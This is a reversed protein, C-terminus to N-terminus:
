NNAFFLANVMFLKGNEWFGRFLPNDILYIVCGAGVNEQGIILSNSQRALAKSGAFGNLQRVNSGLVAANGHEGLCDYSDGSLKLTYYTEPYGYCLPNTNDLKCSFVAGTISNSIMEREAQSYTIHAHEHKSGDSTPDEKAASGDERAKLKFGEKGVFLKAANGLAIVKGGNQMWNLVADSSVDNVSWMEPVILVDLENLVSSQLADMKLKKIPYNIENDFFHWVEGVNLSSANDDYVMGIRTDHVLKVSSSGLDNGKQAMGTMTAILLVDTENAITMLKEEFGVSNDARAIIVTGRGFTKGEMEFPNESYRVKLGAKLVSALFRADNMGNWNLLYAYAGPVARNLQRLTLNLNRSPIKTKSAIAELGYAYPINWATIDYTLSDALYTKPEFLVEILAGKPQDTHVVIFQETVQLSGESSKSYVFGKAPANTGQYYKIQHADLLKLLASRQDENGTFAFAKYTRKDQKMFVNYNSILESSQQSAYEVTSIGTTHHHLLRDTLTLTDGDDNIVMLGGHGSGGQEYTMGIAGSYTPYTDGYSPYLLDFIERTFYFWGNQDFYKTHNKGTGKQFDRQWDTIVQHYPEAAPAFYYPANMGQEHFDVHVHPMWQNYVAIRQQTEKQTNWMWDRNLDFLYHNPRGSPWEEEHEATASHLDASKGLQEYYWNVYRDRGDPNICPDLIVLTNKLLDQRKTVLEFATQLAAETGASENGHVNYSLWVIATKEEKNMVEHNSRINEMNALNEPTSIFALLLERNENTKGYQQLKIRDGANKELQHFYGVVEHHRTFAAGLPRVLFEAPSLVSQAYISYGIFSTAVLVSFFKM